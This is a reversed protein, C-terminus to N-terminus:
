VVYWRCWQVILGLVVYLRCGVFWVQADTADGNNIGRSWTMVTVGNSQSCSFNGTGSTAHPVIGAYSANVFDYQQTMFGAGPSCIVANSKANTPGAMNGNASIGIGVRDLEVRARACVWVWVWLQAECRRGVHTRPLSPTCVCSRVSAWHM